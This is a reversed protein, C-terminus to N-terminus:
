TTETRALEMIKEVNKARPTTSGTEWNSITGGSVDLKDALEKQSLGAERRIRKIEEGTLDDDDDQRQGLMDQVERPKMRQLQAIAHRSKERPEGRGGEWNAVTGPAVDLLIALEKQTLDFQERLARVDDAGVSPPVGVRQLAADVEEKDMEMLPLIRAKNRPQPQTSGQEWSVVTAPSVEVLQGLQKQTLSFRERLEKINEPTIHAQEVEAESALPIGAEGRVRESLSSVQQRLKGVTIRLERVEEDLDKVVERVEEMAEQASKRAQRDVLDRLVEEIGPM